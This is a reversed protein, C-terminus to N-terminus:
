RGIQKKYQKENYEIIEKNNQTMYKRYQKNNTIQNTDLLNYNYDRNPQYWPEVNTYKSMQYQHFPLYKEPPMGMDTNHDASFATYEQEASFSM